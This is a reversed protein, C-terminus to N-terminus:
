NILKPTAPANLEQPTNPFVYKIRAVTRKTTSAFRGGHTATAGESVTFKVPRLQNIYVSISDAKLKDGLSNFFNLIGKRLDIDEQTTLPHEQTVEVSSNRSLEYKIMTASTVPDKHLGKLVEKRTYIECKAGELLAGSEVIVRNNKGM